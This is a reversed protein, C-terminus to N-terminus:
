DNSLKGKGKGKGKVEMREITRGIGRGVEGCGVREKCCLCAFM